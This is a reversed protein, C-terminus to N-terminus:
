QPFTVNRQSTSVKLGNGSVEMQLQQLHAFNVLCEKQVTLTQFGQTMNGRCRFAHCKVAGEFFFVDSIRHYPIM